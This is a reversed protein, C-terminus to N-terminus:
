SALRQDPFLRGVLDRFELLRNGVTRRSLGTLRAIEDYTLEDVFFYVAIDQVAEPLNRLISLVTARDESIPRVEAAASLQQALLAGQRGGDRLRNLCLNTTIRYLWAAASPELPVEGGGRLVRIFVEQAVDEAAHADGLLQRARRYVARSHRLYLAEVKTM